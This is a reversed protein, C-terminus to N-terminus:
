PRWAIQPANLRLLYLYEFLQKFGEVHAQPSTTKIEYVEGTIRSALDPRRRCQRRDPQCTAYEVRALTSIWHDSEGGAVNDVFDKGIFRHVAGGAILRALWAPLLGSPDVLDTPRNLAYVYPHQTAPLREFGEFPDMSHFRGTASNMRRARKDSDGTASDFAESAFLYPQPDSGTHELLEGFVPGVAVAGPTSEVRM